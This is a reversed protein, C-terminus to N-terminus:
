FKFFAQGLKPFLHFAALAVVLIARNGSISIETLEDIVIKRKINSWETASVRM